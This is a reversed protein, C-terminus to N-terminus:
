FPETKILYAAIINAVIENAKASYHGEAMFVTEDPNDQIYELLESAPSIIVNSKNIKALLDSFPLAEEHLTTTLHHIAPLYVILFTGGSQM